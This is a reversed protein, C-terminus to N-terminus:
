IFFNVKKEGKVNANKPQDIPNKFIQKQQKKSCSCVFTRNFFESFRGSSKKQQPQPEVQTIEQQPPVYLESLLARWYSPLKGNQAENKYNKFLEKLFPGSGSLNRLKQILGNAFEVMSRYRVEKDYAGALRMVPLLSSLGKKEAFASNLSSEIEEESLKNKYEMRETEGDSVLEKKRFDGELEAFTMALAFIDNKFSLLPKQSLDNMEPPIFGETGSIYNEELMGAFAFDVIRFDKFESSTMMINEPKIDSHIVNLSHLEIFRDIIDLMIRVRELPRLARYANIAKIKSFGWEMQEYFLYIADKKLICGGFPAIAKSKCPLIESYKKEEHKCIHRLIKIEKLYVDLSKSPDITVKKMVTCEPDSLEYLEGFAGTRILNSNEEIYSFFNGKTEEKYGLFDDDFFDPNKTEFRKRSPCLKEVSVIPLPIAFFLLLCIQYKM